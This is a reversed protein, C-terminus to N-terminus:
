FDNFFQDICRTAPYKKSCNRCFLQCTMPNPYIMLKGRDASNLDIITNKVENTIIPDNNDFFISAKNIIKAGNQFDM